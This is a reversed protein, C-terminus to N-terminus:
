VCARVDCCRNRLRGARLSDPPTTNIRKVKSWWTRQWFRAIATGSCSPIPIGWDMGVNRYRNRPACVQRTITSHCRLSCTNLEVVRGGASEAKRTLLSVFIGSARVNASRGFNKQFGRYSLKEIHIQNGLGLIKNVLEGHDRSQCRGM